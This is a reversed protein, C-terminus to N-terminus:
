EEIKNLAFMELSRTAEGDTKYSESVDTVSCDVYTTRKGGDISEIVIRADEVGLWDFDDIEDVFVEVSLSISKITKTKKRVRGERNMTPVSKRGAMIKPSVSGCDFERGNVTLVITGVLENSEM